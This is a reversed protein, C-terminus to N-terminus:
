KGPSSVILYLLFVVVLAVVAIGGILWAYNTRREKVRQQREKKKKYEISDRLHLCFPAQCHPCVVDQHLMEVPTELVKQCKPCPIHLLASDRVSFATQPAPKSTKFSLKPGKRDPKVHIGPFDPQTDSPTKPTM